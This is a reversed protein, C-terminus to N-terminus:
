THLPNIAKIIDFPKFHTTNSTYIERIDNDIMKAALLFDFISQGRPKHKQILGTLIELTRGTPAIVQINEHYKYFDVLDSARSPSLPHEVRRKDTIVAYLEVLNQVSVAIPIEGKFAKQIIRKAKEHFPSDVNYAYVLINTDILSKTLTNETFSMGILPM